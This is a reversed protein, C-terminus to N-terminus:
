GRAEAVRTLSMEHTAMTQVAAAINKSLSALADRLQQEPIIRAAAHYDRPALRQGLMVQVWSDVRFLDHSDQLAHAAEEFV